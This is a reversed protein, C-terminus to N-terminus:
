AHQDVVVKEPKIRFRAPRPADVVGEVPRRAECQLVLRPAGKVQHGQQALRTFRCPFFPGCLFDVKGTIGRDVFTPNEAIPRLIVFGAPLHQKVKYHQYILDHFPDSVRKQFDIPPEDHLIIAAYRQDKLARALAVDGYGARLRQGYNFFDIERQKGAWYCIAQVDCAVPGSISAVSGIVKSWDRMTKGASHIEDVANFIFYPLCLIPTAFVSVVLFLSAQEKGCYIGPKYRSLAAGLAITLAIFAEFHANYDVGEGARQIIGLPIALAAFLLILDDRHDSSRTRMLTKLAGVFPLMFPLVIAAQVAMRSWSFVRVHAFIASFINKGYFFYSASTALIVLIIGTLAWLNFKTRHFRFLWISIALPLAVLNHKILLGIAILICAIIVSGATPAPRALLLMLAPMMAAHALWQPDNAAVYERFFTANLLAFFLTGVAAQRKTARLMQASIYIAVGVFALSLLSTVRGAYINDGLSLGLNGLLFFSLPPYNNIFLSETGEYLRGGNQAALALFANWGENYNRSYHLSISLVPSYFLVLLIAAIIVLVSTNYRCILVGAKRCIRNSRRRASVDRM